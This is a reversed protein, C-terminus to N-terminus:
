DITTAAALPKMTGLGKWNWVFVKDGSAVEIEATYSNASTLAYGQTTVSTLVGDEYSAVVANIMASGNGTITAINGQVSVNYNTAPAVAGNDTLVFNDLAVNTGLWRMALLLNHQDENTTLDLTITKWGEAVTFSTLGTTTGALSSPILSGTWARYADVNFAAGMADNNCEIGDEGVISAGIWGDTVDTTLAKVDFSLTYSHNPELATYSKISNAGNLGTGGNAQLFNDGEEEGILFNATTMQQIGAAGANGNGVTWGPIVTGFVHSFSGNEILNNGEYKPTANKTYRFTFTNEAAAVFTTSDSAREDLVYEYYNTEDSTYPVALDDASVTYTEGLKFGSRVVDEKIQNGDEDLYRYTATVTGLDVEQLLFDDLFFNAAGWSYAIMLYLRQGAYASTDFTFERQAWGATYAPDRPSIGNTDNYWSSYGGCDILGARNGPADTIVAAMMRHTGPADTTPSFEWYTLKYQKGGDLAFYTQLNNASNGGTGDASVMKLSSAGEHAQESSQAWNTVTAITGNNYSNWGDVGNEFGPNTIVGDVVGTEVQQAYKVVIANGSPQLTITRETSEDYTYRTMTTGSFVNAPAALYSEPLTYTKGDEYIIDSITVPAKIAQNNGDVFTVDVSTYQINSVEKLVFNDLMWNGNDSGWYANILLYRANENTHIVAEVPTWPMGTTPDLKTTSTVEDARSVIGGTGFETQNAYDLTGAEGVPAATFYLPKVRTGGIKYDFSLLYDKDPEIPIYTKLSGAGNESTNNTTSRISKAGDSADDSWTLASTTLQQVGDVGANGNGITWGVIDGNLATEFSPNAILNEGKPLAVMDFVLTVVNNGTASVITAPASLEANYSYYYNNSADSTPAVTQYEVGATFTFDALCEAVTVDDAITNGETDRYQITVDAYQADDSLEILSFDDICLGGSAWAYGIAVYLTSNTVNTTDLTYSRQNWGAPITVDRPSIAMADNYWSSQGGCDILVNAAATSTVISRSTTVAAMSMVGSLISDAYEWYTLLYKKGNQIPFYTFLNNVNTSGVNANSAQLSYSGSHARTNTATWGTVPSGAYNTWGESSGGEFSHNAILANTGNVTVYYDKTREMGSLTATATLKIDLSYKPATGFTGDDALISPYSSKWTVAANLASTPLAVSEGVISFVSMQSDLDAWIDSFSTQKEVQYLAFNDLYVSTELDYIALQIVAPDTLAPLTLVREIKTWTGPQLTVAAITSALYNPVSVNTDDEAVNAALSATIAVPEESDAYAYGTFYYTAESVAEDIMHFISGAKGIGNKATTGDITKVVHASSTGDQAFASSQEWYEDSMPLYASGRNSTTGATVGDAWTTGEFSGGSILNDTLTLYNSGDGAEIVEGAASALLTMGPVVSVVMALAVILALLKRKNM